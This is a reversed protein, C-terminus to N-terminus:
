GLRPPHFVSSPRDIPRPSTDDRAFPSSGGEPQDGCAVVEAFEKVQAGAPAVPALPPAERRPAGSCNPGRCPLRFPAPGDAKTAHEAAGAPDNLITVHDGCSATARGPSACAVVVLLLAARWGRVLPPLSTAM